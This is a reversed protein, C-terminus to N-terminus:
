GGERIQLVLQNLRGNNLKRWEKDSVLARAEFERDLVEARFAIQLETLERYYEMYEEVGAERDQNLARWARDLGAFDVRAEVVYADIERLLAIMQDARATDDVAKRVDAAVQDMLPPEEKKSKCGALVSAISIVIVLVIYFRRGYTAGAIERLADEPHGAVVHRLQSDSEGNVQTDGRNWIDKKGLLSAAVDPDLKKPEVKRNNRGAQALFSGDDLAKHVVGTPATRRTSAM